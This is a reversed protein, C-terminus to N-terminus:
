IWSEVGLVGLQPEALPDHMSVAAFGRLGLPAPTQYERQRTRVLKAADVRANVAVQRAAVQRGQGGLATIIHLHPLQPFFNQGLARAVSLRQRPQPSQLSSIRPNVTPM